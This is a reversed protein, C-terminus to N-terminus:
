RFIQKRLEDLKELAENLQALSKIAQEATTRVTEVDAKYEELGNLVIRHRVVKEAEAM